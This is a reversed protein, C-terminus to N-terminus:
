KKEEKKVMTKPSVSREREARKKGSTDEKWIDENFVPREGRSATQARMSRALGNLSFIGRRALEHQQKQLLQKQRKKEPEAATTAEEERPRKLGEGQDKKNPKKASDM